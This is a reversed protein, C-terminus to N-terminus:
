LQMNKATRQKGGGYYQGPTFADAKANQVIMKLGCWEVYDLTASSETLHYHVTSNSINDNKTRTKLKAVFEGVTLCNGIIVDQPDLKM